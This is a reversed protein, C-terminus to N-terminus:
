SLEETAEPLPPLAPLPQDQFLLNLRDEVWKEFLEAMMRDYTVTDLRAPLQQELRIIVWFRDAQFPPWIQGPRGVRLRSAIEPHAAPIPLPGIIGQSLREQGESHTNALAAFSAEDEAIRQYLEAALTSDSVRLLSYVAQDLEPKRHLFHVEVEQGWNYRRFRDLREVQTAMQRVDALQLRQRLLWPQIEDERTIGQQALWNRELEREREPTLPIARALEDIVWAKALARAVGQVRIVRNVESLTLWPRGVGLEVVPQEPLGSLQEPLNTRTHPEPEPM